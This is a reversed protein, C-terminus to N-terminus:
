KGTLRFYSKRYQIALTILTAEVAIFLIIVSVLDILGQTEKIALYALRSVMAIAVISLCAIFSPPKLKSATAKDSDPLSYDSNSFGRIVLILISIGLTIQLLGFGVDLLKM